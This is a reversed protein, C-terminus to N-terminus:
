FPPAEFRIENREFLQDAGNFMFVGFISAWEWLQFRIWEGEITHNSSVKSLINVGYPTLKVWIFSNINM